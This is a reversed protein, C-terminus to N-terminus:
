LLYILVRDSGGLLDRDLCSTQVHKGSISICDLDDPAM